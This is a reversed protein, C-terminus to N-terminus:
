LKNNGAVGDVKHSYHTHRGRDIDARRTENSDFITFAFTCFFIYSYFKLKSSHIGGGLLSDEAFRLFIGVLFDPTLCFIYLKNCQFIAESFQKKENAKGRRASFVCPHLSFILM